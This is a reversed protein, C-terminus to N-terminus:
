PRPLNGKPVVGHPDRNEQTKVESWVGDMQELTCEALDQGRSRMIEEMAKFRKVFRDVAARLADEPNITLLRALNAITFLLDGIEREVVEESGGKLADRLEREEEAVKAWVDEAAAWDFGVRSAREGVRFAKQLAPLAKPLNGLVSHRRGKEKSEEAKIVQWNATVEDSDAVELDGFVHPHRRVMKTGAADLAQELSFLGAEEYMQAVFLLMFFVDGLEEAVEQANGLGMAESLEYAEELVYKKVTSPTQERDWPCGDPARLRAIIDMLWHMKREASSNREQKMLPLERCWSKQFFVM